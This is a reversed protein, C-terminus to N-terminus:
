TTAFAVVFPKDGANFPSLLRVANGEKRKLQALQIDQIHLAAHVGGCVQAHARQVRTRMFLDCDLKDGAAAVCLESPRGDVTAVVIASQRRTSATSM